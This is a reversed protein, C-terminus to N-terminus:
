RISAEELSHCFRPKDWILVYFRPTLPTGMINIHALRLIRTPQRGIRDVGNEAVMGPAARAAGAPSVEFFPQERAIPTHPTDSSDLIVALQVSTAHVPAADICYVSHITNKANFPM